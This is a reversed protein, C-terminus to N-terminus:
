EEFYLGSFVRRLESSDIKSKKLDFLFHLKKSGSTLTIFEGKKNKSLGRIGQGFVETIEDILKDGDIRRVAPFLYLTPEIELDNKPTFLLNFAVNVGEVVLSKGDIRHDPLQSLTSGSFGLVRTVDSIALPRTQALLRQLNQLFKSNSRREDSKLM